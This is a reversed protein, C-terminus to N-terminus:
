GLERRYRYSHMYMLSGLLWLQYFTIDLEGRSFSGLLMAVFTLVVVRALRDGRRFLGVSKFLLTGLMALYFALGFVGGKLLSIALSNAISGEVYKNALFGFGLPTNSVKAIVARVGDSRAEYSAVDEGGDFKGSVYNVLFESIFSSMTLEALIGMLILFVAFRKIDFIFVFLFLVPVVVGLSLTMLMTVLLLIFFGKHLFYYSYFLAPILAYAFTGPEDSFSQVRSMYLGAVEQRFWLFGLGYNNRVQSEGSIENSLSIVGIPSILNLFVLLWLTIALVSLFIVICSYVHISLHIFYKSASLLLLTLYGVKLYQSVMVKITVADIGNILSSLTVMAIYCCYFVFSPVVTKHLGGPVVICVVFLILVLVTQVAQYYSLFLFKLFFPYSLLSFLLVALVMLQPWTLGRLLKKSADIRM